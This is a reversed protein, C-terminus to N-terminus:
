SGRWPHRHSEVLGGPDLIMIVSGDGLITSGSFVALHRLQQSVPKVVIEETQLVGDVVM